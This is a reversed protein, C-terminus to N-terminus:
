QTPKSGHAAGRTRREFAYPVECREAKLRGRGEMRQPLREGGRQTGFPLTRRVGLRQRGETSREAGWGAAATRGRLTRQMGLHSATPAHSRPHVANLGRPSQVCPPQQLRVSLNAAGFRGRLCRVVLADLLHDRFSRPWRTQNCALAASSLPAVGQATHGNYHPRLNLHNCCAQEMRGRETCKATERASTRSRFACMRDPGCPVNYSARFALCDSHIM